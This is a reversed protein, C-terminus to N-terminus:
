GQGLAVANGRAVKPDLIYICYTSIVMLGKEFSKKHDMKEISAVFHLLPDGSFLKAMPKSFEEPVPILALGTRPDETLEAPTDPITYLQTTQDQSPEGHDLSMTPAHLNMRVTGPRLPRPPPLPLLAFCRFPSPSLSLSTNSPPLPPSPVWFNTCWFHGRWIKGGTFRRASTTPDFCPLGAHLPFRWMGGKKPSNVYGVELPQNTQKAGQLIM